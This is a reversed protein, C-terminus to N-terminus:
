EQSEALAVVSEDTNREKVAQLNTIFELMKTAIEVVEQESEQPFGPYGSRIVAHFLTSGWPGYRTPDTSSFVQVTPTEQAVALHLAGSDVGLVLHARALLAALHGVSMGTLCPVKMDEGMERAIAEMMPREPTTGTLVVRMKPFRQALQAGCTAWSTPHWLKYLVSTGPHILLLPTQRGIGYSRLRTAVEHHEQLTPRFHSPSTAADYPRELGERGIEQLGASVARLHSAVMHEESSFTLCHTLLAASGAVDHGIRHPVGALALMAAGWWFQPRLNIALDYSEGRVLMATQFLAIASACWKRVSWGAYDIPLPCHIVHDISPHRELIQPAADSVMVDIRAFPVSRRLGRLVASTMVLDGLRGPRVLLIRPDPPVSEDGSHSRRCLLDLITGILPVLVGMSTRLLRKM